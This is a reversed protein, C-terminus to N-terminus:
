ARRQLVALFSGCQKFAEASTGRNLEDRGRSPFRALSPAAAQLAEIGMQCGAAGISLMLAISKFGMSKFGILLLRVTQNRRWPMQKLEAGELDVDAFTFQPFRTNPDPHLPL